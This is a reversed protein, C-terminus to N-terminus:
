NDGKIKFSLTRSSEIPMGNIQPAKWKTEKLEKIFEERFVDNIVESVRVKKVHGTASIFVEAHILKIEKKDLGSYRLKREINKILRDIGIVPEALLKQTYIGPESLMLTDVKARKTERVRKLNAEKKNGIGLLVVEQLSGSQEEDFAASDTKVMALQNQVDQSALRNMELDALSKLKYNENTANVHSLPVSAENAVRGKFNDKSTDKKHHAVGRVVLDIDAGTGKIEDAEVGKVEGILKKEPGAASDDYRLNMDVEQGSYKEAVSVENSKTKVLSEIEIKEEFVKNKSDPNISEKIPSGLVKKKNIKEELESLSESVKENEVGEESIKLRSTVLSEKEKTNTIQWLTGLGLLLLVGAAVRIWVPLTKKTRSKNFKLRLIELEENVEDAGMREFGEVADMLFPDTQMRREFAYREKKTMEQSLYRLIDYINQHNNLM